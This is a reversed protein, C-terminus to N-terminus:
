TIKTQYYYNNLDIISSETQPYKEEPIYLSGKTGCSILLICVVIISSLSVIKMFKKRSIM